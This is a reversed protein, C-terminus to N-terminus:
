LAHEELAEGRSSADRTQSPSPGFDVGGFDRLQAMNYTGSAASGPRCAISGYSGSLTAPSSWCALSFGSDLRALLVDCKHSVESPRM